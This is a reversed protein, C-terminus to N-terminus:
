RIDQGAIYGYWTTGVDRSTFVFVDIANAASSLAPATGNPWIVSSPWTVTYGSGASDQKVELTMIYEYVSTAAPSFSYTVDETLTHHFSNCNTGQITAANSSSTIEEFKSRFAGFVELGDNIYVGDSKTALVSSNNRHSLWVEGHITTNILMNEPVETDELAFTSAVLKLSGTGADEIVSNSGDHYIKLDNTDGVRLELGDAIKLGSALDRARGM